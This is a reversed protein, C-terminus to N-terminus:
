WLYGELELWAAVAVAMVAVPVMVLMLAVAVIVGDEVVSLSVWVEPVRELVAAVAEAECPEPAALTATGAPRAAM